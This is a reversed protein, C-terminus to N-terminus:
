ALAGKNHAQAIINNYIVDIEAKTQIDNLNTPWANIDIKTFKITNGTRGSTGTEMIQIVRIDPYYKEFAAKIDSLNTQDVGTQDGTITIGTLEECKCDKGDCCTEGPKHTTGNPCDCEKDCASCVLLMGAILISLLKGQLSWCFGEAKAQYCRRGHRPALLLTLFIKGAKM